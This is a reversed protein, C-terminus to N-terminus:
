RHSEVEGVQMLRCVSLWLQPEHPTLQRNLHLKPAHVM